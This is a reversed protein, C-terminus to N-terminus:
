INSFILTGLPVSSTQAQCLESDKLIHITSSIIVLGLIASSILLAVLLLLTVLLQQIRESLQPIRLLRLQSIKLIRIQM